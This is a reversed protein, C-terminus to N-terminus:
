SRTRSSGRKWRTKPLSRKHGFGQARLLEPLVSPCLPPLRGPLEELARWLTLYHQGDAERVEPTEGRSLRLDDSSEAVFIWARERVERGNWFWTLWRGAFRRSWLKALRLDAAPPVIFYPARTRISSNLWWSHRMM